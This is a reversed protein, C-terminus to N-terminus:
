RRRRSLLLLSGSAFSLVSVRPLNVSMERYGRNTEIYVLGYDRGGWARSLERTSFQRVSARRNVVTVSTTWSRGGIWDMRTVVRLPLSLFSVAFVLWCAVLAARQLGHRPARQTSRDAYDIIAAM